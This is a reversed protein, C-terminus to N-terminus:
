DRLADVGAPDLLTNGSTSVMVPDVVLHRLPREAVVEITEAGHLMGTKAAAVTLDDLVADLQARVFDPAVPAVGHVGRTDQATLVTVVSAGHIGFAVFTALDAQIGAGGSPDSGAITLAVPLPSVDM